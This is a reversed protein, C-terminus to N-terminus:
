CRPKYIPPSGVKRQETKCVIWRRRERQQALADDGSGFLSPRRVERM